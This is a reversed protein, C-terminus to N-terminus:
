STLFESPNWRTFVEVEETSKQLEVDTEETQAAEEFNCKKMEEDTDNRASKRQLIQEPLREEPIRCVCGILNVKVGTLKTSERIIDKIIIEQTSKITM